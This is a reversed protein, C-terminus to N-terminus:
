RHFFETFLSVLFFLQVAIYCIFPLDNVTTPTGAQTTQQNQTTTEHAMRQGNKHSGISTTSHSNNLSKDVERGIVSDHKEANKAKLMHNIERGYQTYKTEFNQLDEEDSSDIPEDTPRSFKKSKKVVSSSPPTENKSLIQEKTAEIEGENAALLLLETLEDTEIEDM